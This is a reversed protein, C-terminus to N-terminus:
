IMIGRLLQKIPDRPAAKHSQVPQETKCPPPTKKTAATSAKDQAKSDLDPLYPMYVFAM